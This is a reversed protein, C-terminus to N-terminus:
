LHSQSSNTHAPCTVGRSSRRSSSRGGPRRDVLRPPHVARAVLGAAHGLVHGRRAPLRAARVAPHRGLGARAILLGDNAARRWRPWRAVGRAPRRRARVRRARRRLDALRARDHEPQGAAPQDGVAVGDRMEGYGDFDYRHWFGTRRTARRAATSSAITNRIVPDSAPKIGLRVLELFSPDVIARQDVRGPRQRRHRLAHRREPQRGQDAAPLLAEALVPREHDRDLGPGEAAVRRRERPLRGRVRTDGNARAIDAACVLGPSRRRSRPRRTATRTRGASRRRGRGTRSSTTPPRKRARLHRRRLPRLQWALVIPFATEDLQLNSWKPAGDVTSNQPFSGDPKQQRDFLYTARAAGARDGDAILATAIEYLDRAWVLHYADSPNSLGTGWAWPM